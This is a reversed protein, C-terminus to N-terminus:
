SGAGSRRQSRRCKETGAWRRMANPPTTSLRTRITPQATATPTRNTSRRPNFTRSTQFGAGSTREPPTSDSARAVHTSSGSIRPPTLATGAAWQWGHNNSPLDGDYLHQLFFRAGRTWDLHLDKVLFSAVIMRMRNHMFGEAVLQRMGADVIPFGTDGACWAAFKRDAAAGTDIRIDALAPNFAHWASQPWASLVGAYFDRWALEQAFTAHDPHDRDLRALM